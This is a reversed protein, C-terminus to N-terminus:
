AHWTVNYERKIAQHDLKLRGIAQKNDILIFTISYYNM